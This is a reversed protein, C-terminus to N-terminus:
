SYEFTKIDGCDHSFVLGLFTIILNIYFFGLVYVVHIKYLLTLRTDTTVPDRTPPRRNTSGPSSPLSAHTCGPPTGTGVATGGPCLVPWSGSETRRVSWLDAM